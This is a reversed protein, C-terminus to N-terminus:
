PAPRLLVSSDTRSAAADDDDDDYDYAVLPREM